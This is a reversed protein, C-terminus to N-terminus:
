DLHLLSITFDYQDAFLVMEECPEELWVGGDIELIRNNKEAVERQAALSKGPIQIPPMNVTKFFAGTKFAPESSRAWLIFGDKSVVLISRRETYQLWRLISATLSTQYREACMGIMELDPKVRPGIQKRFDDLPMLLNAAFNNAQSEIQKYRSDWIAMDEEKCQIGEPYKLRHLLYHGFEHAITFNIRGSSNIANNYIIGWGKKSDDQAPYLAGEFGPLSDDLVDTIPDEPFKQHSYDLALQKVKVPFRDEKYAVNLIVTLDTAWREPSMEKAKGIAKAIDRIKKRTESGMRKYERYFKADVSDEETVTAENDWLYEIEVGLQDAIKAIKAVSPRPPNKNELEWIYSKSSDTLEALKELTLGKRKRINKIKNGLTSPM